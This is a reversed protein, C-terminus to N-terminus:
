IYETQANYAIEAQKQPTIDQVGGVIQVAGREPDFQTQRIYDKLWRIEGSATYIRYSLVFSKNNKLYESESRFAVLDDPHILSLWGYDLNQIEALSYGT